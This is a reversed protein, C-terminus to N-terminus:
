RSTSSAVSPRTTALSKLTDCDFVMVLLRMFTDGHPPDEFTEPFPFYVARARSRYDHILPKVAEYSGVVGVAVQNHRWPGLFLGNNTRVDPDNVWGSPILGMAQARMPTLGALDNGAKLYERAATLLAEFRARADREAMVEVASGRFLEAESPALRYLTVGGSHVSSRDITALLPGWQALQSDDAIVVSTDHAVMFAKLQTTADPILTTNAFANIIPWLEYERPPIGTYGVAMRFHMNAAAQWLMTDGISSYPLALVAEHPRLVKRYSGDRFFNPLQLPRGWFKGDINPLTAIIIMLAFLRRWLRNVRQDALWLSVIIAVILFGYNIFRGPMAHEIMPLRLFLKWPLGFATWPGIKLRPGLALVLITALTALMVQADYNHRRSRAYLAVVILTPLGIYAGGSSVLGILRTMALLHGCEVSAAPLVLNALNISNVGPSAARGAPAGGSLMYYLYPSLLIAAGIVGVTLPYSLKALQARRDDDGLIWSAALAIFGLIVSSAALEVFLLFQVAILSALALGSGLPSFRGRLYAVVLLVILPQPFIFLLNLHGAGMEGLEYSSFGFLYGGILAPGFRGCLSRCLLFASWAALAPAAICLFNFAFVPGEAATLPAALLSALPIGASWALNFGGPVWVLHCWFPNLRHNLAYPWWTLAWILFSPDTNRGFHNRALDNSLFRGFLAFTLLGYFCLAILDSAKSWRNTQSRM